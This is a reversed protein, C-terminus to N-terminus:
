FIKKAIPMAVKVISSTTKILSSGLFEWSKIIKCIQVKSLKIDTSMNKQSQNKVKFKQRTVLLLIYVIEKM